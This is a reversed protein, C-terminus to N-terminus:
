MFEFVTDEFNFGIAELFFGMDFNSKITHMIIIDNKLDYDIYWADRYDFYGFESNVLGDLDEHPFDEPRMLILYLAHAIHNYIQEVQLPTLNNKVKRITIRQQM